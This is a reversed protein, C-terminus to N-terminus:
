TTALEGQGGDEVLEMEYRGMRLIRLPRRNTRMYALLMGIDANDHIECCCASEALEEEASCFSLIDFGGGENGPVVVNVTTGYSDVRDFITGLRDAPLAVLVVREVPAPPTGRSALSRAFDRHRLIRGAARAADLRRRHSADM